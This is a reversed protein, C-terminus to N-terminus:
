RKLVNELLTFINSESERDTHIYTIAVNEMCLNHKIKINPIKIFYPEPIMNESGKVWVLYETRKPKLFM